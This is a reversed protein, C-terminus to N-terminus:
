SLVYPLNSFYFRAMPLYDLCRIINARLCSMSEISNSLANGQASRPRTFGDICM